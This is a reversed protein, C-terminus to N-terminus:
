EFDAVVPMAPALFGNDIASEDTTDEFDAMSPTEPSLDISLPLTATVDDFTAESPTVPMLDTMSITALDEFTAEMPTAPALSITSAMSSENAVPNLKNDNDAFLFGAQLTLAAALITITTKM